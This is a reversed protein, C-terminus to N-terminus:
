DVSRGNVRILRHFVLEVSLQILEDGGNYSHVFQGDQTVEFDLLRYDYVPTMHVAIFLLIHASYTNRMVLVM